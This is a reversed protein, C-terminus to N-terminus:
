GEAGDGGVGVGSDIAETAGATRVGEGCGGDDGTQDREELALAGIAASPWEIVRPRAAVVDMDLCAIDIQQALPACRDELLGAKCTPGGFDVVPLAVRGNVDKSDSTASGAASTLRGIRMM